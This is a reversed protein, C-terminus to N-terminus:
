EDEPIETWMSLNGRYGYHIWKKIPEKLFFAIGFSDVLSLGDYRVLYFGAKEPEESVPKWKSTM